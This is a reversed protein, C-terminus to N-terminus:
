ARNVNFLYLRPSERTMLYTFLYFKLSCELSFSELDDLIM